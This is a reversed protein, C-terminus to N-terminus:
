ASDERMRSLSLVERSEHAIARLARVNDQLHPGVELEYAPLCRALNALVKLTVGSGGLLGQMSPYLVRRLFEPAAMRTPRARVGIRPVVLAGISIPDVHLLRPDLELIRKEGPADANLVPGISRGGALLKLTEDHAKVRRYIAQAQLGSVMLFDDGLLRLGSQAAALALTSKGAGGPGLLLVAQDGFVVGAGHIMEGGFTHAIWSLPLRFPTARAWYPLLRADKCWVIAEHQRPDFAASANAAYDVALSFPAAQQHRLTGFPSLWSSPWTTQPQLGASVEDVVTISFDAGRRDPAHAFAHRVSIPAEDASAPYTVEISWEFVTIFASASDDSKRFRRAAEQLGQIAATVSEDTM